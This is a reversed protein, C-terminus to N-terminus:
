EGVAVPPGTAPPTEGPGAGDRATEPEAVVIVRCPREALVTQLTKNYLPAGARYRLGMVLASAEM